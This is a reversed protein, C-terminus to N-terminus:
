SKVSTRQRAESLLRVLCLWKTLFQLSTTSNTPVTAVCKTTKFFYKTSFCTHPFVLLESKEEETLSSYNEYNRLRAINRTDSSDLQLASCVCHLYYMLKARPNEPVNATTGTAKVHLRVNELAFAM